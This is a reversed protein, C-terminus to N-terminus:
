MSIREGNSEGLRHWRPVLEGQSHGARCDLREVFPVLLSAAAKKKTAEPRRDYRSTTKVDSHGVMRQVTAIDVGADLLDGIHSRRLDHPSFRRLGAQQGRKRLTYLVAQGTLRGTTRVRGAKDVAQLLAGPAAGRARLWAALAAGAGNAIHALREKGGKGRVRLEGAEADYDALDLGVAEARRLGAGYLLALLAADRAGAPTSDCACAEFLARLEGAELARGAPLTTGRVPPLDAARQHHEADVLGLRWCERLVGRLAALHRNISAPSLLRGTRLSVTGVLAARVAQTVTYDMREWPLTRADHEGGSALGALTDLARRQTDRSGVGLRALYAAAPSRALSRQELPALDHETVVAPLNASM